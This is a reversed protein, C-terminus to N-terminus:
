GSNAGACLQPKCLRWLVKEACAEPSKRVDHEWIALVDWGMNKLEGIRKRDRRKNTELKNEWFAM